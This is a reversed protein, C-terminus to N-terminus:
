QEALCMKMLLLPGALSEHCFGPAPRRGTALTRQTVRSSRALGDGRMSIQEFVHSRLGDPVAMVWATGARETSVAHGQLRDQDEPRVTSSAM